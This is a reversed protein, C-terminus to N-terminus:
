TYLEISCHYQADLRFVTQEDFARIVAPMLLSGKKHQHTCRCNARQMSSVHSLPKLLAATNEDLEATQHQSM